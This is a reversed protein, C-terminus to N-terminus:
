IATALILLVDSSHRKNNQHVNPNSMLTQIGFLKSSTSFELKIKEGRAELRKM